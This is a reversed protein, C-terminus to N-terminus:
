GKIHRVRKTALGSATVNKARHINIVHHSAPKPFKAAKPHTVTHSKGPSLPYKVTIAVGFEKQAGM